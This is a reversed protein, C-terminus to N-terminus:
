LRTKRCKENVVQQINLSEFEGPYKRKSVSLIKMLRNPTLADSSIQSNKYKMVGATYSGNALEERTYLESLMKKLHKMCDNRKRKSRSHEEIPTCPIENFYM